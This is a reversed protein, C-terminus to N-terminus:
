FLEDDCSVEGQPIYVLVGQNIDGDITRVLDVGREVTDFATARAMQPFLDKRLRRFRANRGGM